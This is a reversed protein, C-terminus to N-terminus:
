IPRRPGDEGEVLIDTRTVSVTAGETRSRSLAEALLAEPRLSGEQGVRITVDVSVLSGVSSVRAGEPLSRTLEFVKTKGKREVEFVGEGIVADLAEQLTGAEVDDGKVSLVYRALTCAAALAPERMGVYRVRDPALEPPTAGSLRCLVEGPKVYETLWIDFYEREGATGVPLAPGFAVKMRPNFGKTVAYPLGARRASREVARMVELHSLFRIRGSKSYCVRLRFEGVAM